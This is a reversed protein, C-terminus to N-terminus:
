KYAEMRRALYAINDSVTKLLQTAKVTKALDQHEGEEIVVEIGKVLKKALDIQQRYEKKLVKDM